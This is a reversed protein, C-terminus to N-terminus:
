APVDARGGATDGRSGTALECTTADAWRRATVSSFSWTGDATNTTTTIPSGSNVRLAVTCVVTAGGCPTGTIATTENNQYATGSVSIAWASVPSLYCTVLSLVFLLLRM